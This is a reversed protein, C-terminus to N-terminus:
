IEQKKLRRVFVLSLIMLIIIPLTAHNTAHKNQSLSCDGFEARLPDTDGYNFMIECQNLSNAVEDFDSRGDGDTDATTPNTNFCEVEVSDSLGDGDTDAILPHPEKKSETWACDGNFDEDADPLGDGDTDFSDYGNIGCYRVVCNQDQNWPCVDDSDNVGDGDTDAVRPNTEGADPTGGNCSFDEDGDEIGDGDTDVSRPDTETTEAYDGDHNADEVGDPICDGDTDASKPDTEGAEPDYYGNYNIDEDGDIIGDSDTDEDAANSETAPDWECNLNLDEASDPVGDVDYDSTSELGEICNAYYCNEGYTKPCADAGDLIQDNDFDDDLPDLGYLLEKGDNMGDNDSDPNKASTEGADQVGNDNLDEDGDKLGDGDYDQLYLSAGTPDMILEGYDNLGDDDFSDPDGANTEGAEVECNMYYADNGAGHDELHDFLGDDDTDLDESDYIRYARESDEPKYCNAQFIGSKDTYNGTTYFDGQWIYTVYNGSTKVLAFYPVTLDLGSEEQPLQTISYTAIHSEDGTIDMDMEGDVMYHQSSGRRGPLNIGGLKGKTRSPGSINYMYTQTAEISRTYKYHLELSQYSGLQSEDVDIWIQDKDTPILRVVSASISMNLGDVTCSNGNNFIDNDNEFKITGPGSGIYVGCNANESITTSDLTNEKANAGDFFIGYGKNNKVTVNKFTNNQNYGAVVIGHSGFGQVSILNDSDALFNMGETPDNTAEASSGLYIGYGSVSDVGDLNLSIDAGESNRINNLVVGTHVNTGEVDLTELDSINELEVLTGNHTTAEIDILNVTSANHIRIGTGQTNEFTINQLTVNNITGSTPIIEIIAESDSTTSGYIEINSININSCGTIRIATSPKNYIIINDLSIDQGTECEIFQATTIESITESSSIKINKIETDNSGKIRFMVDSGYYRIEQNEDGSNGDIYFPNESELSKGPNSYILEQTDYLNAYNTLKIGDRCAGLTADSQGDAGENFRGVFYALSDSPYYEGYPGNEINNDSEFAYCVDALAQQSFLMSILCAILVVFYKTQRKM